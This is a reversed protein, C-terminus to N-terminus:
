GAESRTWGREAGSYLSELIARERVDIRALFESAGGIGQFVRFGRLLFEHMAALGALRAPGGMAALLTGILPHRVLRDLSRGIARYAAAYKAEDIRGPDDRRLRLALAEDMRESMADLEVADALTALAADPLARALTPIVRALEADRRSFDKAGYLDDLFFRAADAYRASGLLDAHTAALRTAQWRKVAGTWRRLDADSAIRERMVSVERAAATLREANNM